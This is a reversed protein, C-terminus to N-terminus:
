ARENSGTGTKFRNMESSLVHTGYVKKYAYLADEMSAKLDNKFEQVTQNKDRNSSLMDLPSKPHCGLDMKFPPM